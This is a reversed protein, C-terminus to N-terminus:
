FSCSRRNFDILVWQDEFEGSGIAGLEYGGYMWNEAKVYRMKLQYCRNENSIYESGFWYNDTDTDYPDPLFEEYFRGQNNIFRSDWTQEFVIEKDNEQKFNVYYLDGQYGGTFVVDVIVEMGLVGQEAYLDKVIRKAPNSNEDRFSIASDLKEIEHKLSDRTKTLLDFKLEYKNLMQYAEKRYKVLDFARQELLSDKVHVLNEAQAKQRLSQNYSNFVDIYQSQLRNSDQRLRDIEQLLVKKSQAFLNMLIFGTALLCM